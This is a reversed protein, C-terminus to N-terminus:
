SPAQRVTESSGQLIAEIPRKRQKGHANMGYALRVCRDFGDSDLHEKERMSRTIEAFLRFDRDKVLLQHEEFFPIVAEALERM